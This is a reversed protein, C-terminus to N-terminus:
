EGLAYNIIALAAIVATETRLINKGLSVELYGAQSATQIEEDTWGGEPGVALAVELPASVNTPASSAQGSLRLAAGPKQGFEGKDGGTKGDIAGPPQEQNRANGSAGLVSRIAPAEPRESLVIRQLTQSAGAFAADPKLVAALKPARL